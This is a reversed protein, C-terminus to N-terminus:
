AAPPGEVETVMVLDRQHETGFLFRHEGVVDFGYKRYFALARPNQEWVGLWIRDSGSRAAVALAEDMLAQAIGRGHWEASVYIRYLEAPREARVCAMPADLRLQAFGVLDGEADALITVWDPAAIERAQTETGFRRRCHLAMDTPDNTASFADRFTQEALGALAEADEPGARRITAM